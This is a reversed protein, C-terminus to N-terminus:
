VAWSRKVTLDPTATEIKKKEGGRDLSEELTGRQIQEIREQNWAAHILEERTAGNKHKIRTNSERERSNPAQVLQEMSLDSKLAQATSIL